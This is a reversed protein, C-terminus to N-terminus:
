KPELGVMQVIVGLERQDSPNPPLAKDLTFEVTVADGTLLEPPVDRSYTYDGAL